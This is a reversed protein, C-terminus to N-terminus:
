CKAARSAMRARNQPAAPDRGDSFFFTTRRESLSDGERGRVGGGASMQKCEARIM